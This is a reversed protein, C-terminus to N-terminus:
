TAPLDGESNWWVAVVVSLVCGDDLTASDPEYSDDNICKPHSAFEELLAEEVESADEPTDAEYIPVVEEAQLAARCRSLDVTSVLMFEEVDHRDALAHVRDCLAALDPRRPM